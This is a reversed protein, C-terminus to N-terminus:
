PSLSSSVHFPLPAWIKDLRQAYSYKYNRLEEFVQVAHVIDVGGIVDVEKSLILVDWRVNRLVKSGVVM